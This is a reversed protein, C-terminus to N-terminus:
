ALLQNDIFVEPGTEAVWCWVVISVQVVDLVMGAGVMGFGAIIYPLFIQLAISISTEEVEKAEIEIGDEKDRDKEMKTATKVEEILLPTTDEDYSEDDLETLLPETKSIAGNKRQTDRGTLGTSLDVEYDAEQSDVTVKPVM